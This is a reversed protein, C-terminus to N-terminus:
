HVPNTIIELDGRITVERVKGRHASQSLIGLSTRCSISHLLNPHKNLIDQEDKRILLSIGSKSGITVINDLRWNQIIHRSLPHYAIVHKRVM